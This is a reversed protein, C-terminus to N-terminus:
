AGAVIIVNPMLICYNAIEVDHSLMVGHNVYVHDKLIINTTLVTNAGIVVGRGLCVFEPDYVIVSPHVITPFIINSNRIEKIIKKKVLPNGIGVVVSLESKIQLLDKVKGLVPIGNIDVENTGDDYFGIIDWIVNIRNISKLLGLVERGLGGAGIIAIKKLM